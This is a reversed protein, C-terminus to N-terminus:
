LFNSASGFFDVNKFVFTYNFHMSQTICITVNSLNHCSNEKEDNLRGLEINKLAERVHTFDKSNHVLNHREAETFYRSKRNCKNCRYKDGKRKGVDSNRIISHDIKAVEDENTETIQDVYEYFDNNDVVSKSLPDEQTMDDTQKSPILVEKGLFFM